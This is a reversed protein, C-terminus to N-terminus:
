SIITINLDSDGDAPANQWYAVANWGSGPGDQKTTGNLVGQDNALQIVNGATVVQSGNVLLQGTSGKNTFNLNGSADTSVLWDGIQFGQQSPQEM